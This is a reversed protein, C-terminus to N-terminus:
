EVPELSGAIRLMEEFPMADVPTYRDQGNEQGDYRMHGHSFIRVEAGDREFVLVRVMEVGLNKKEATMLDEYEVGVAPSGAVEFVEYIASDTIPPSGEGIPLTGAALLSRLAEEGLPGDAAREQLTFREYQLSVGEGKLETVPNYDAIFEEDPPVLLTFGHDEAIQAASTKFIPELREGGPMFMAVFASLVLTVFLMGAVGIMRGAKWSLSRGVLVFLSIVVAASLALVVIWGVPMRHYIFAFQSLFAAIAVSAALLALWLAARPRAGRALLLSLAIVAVIMFLGFMGSAWYM